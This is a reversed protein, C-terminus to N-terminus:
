RREVPFQIETVCRADDQGDGSQLYIDRAPGVIGYGNAEIWRGLAAYARYLTNYSGHHIVSAM